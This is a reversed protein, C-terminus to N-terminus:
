QEYLFFAFSTPGLSHIKKKAHGTIPIGPPNSLNIRLSSIFFPNGPPAVFNPIFGEAFFGQRNLAYGLVELM